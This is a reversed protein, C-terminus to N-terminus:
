GHSHMICLLICYNSNCWIHGNIEYFSVNKAINKGFINISCRNQSLSQPYPLSSSMCPKQGRQTLNNKLYIFPVAIGSKPIYEDSHSSIKTSIQSIDVLLWTCSYEYCSVAHHYWLHGQLLISLYVQYTWVVTCREVTFFRSSNVGVDVCIFRVSIISLM